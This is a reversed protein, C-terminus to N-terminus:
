IKTEGRYLKDLLGSVFKEPEFDILDEPKEGIGVHLVPVKLAEAISFIAGGKATGDLKTIIVGDIGVMENFKEAQIIASTGQTGDLILIKQHPSDPLAKGSVRIIKKLEEALNSQNHLRGATDIIIRDVGKAVGSKVADFTVGSPDHGQKSFVIPVDIKDAWRKLQEIAAARFTDSAGLLVRKGSNKYKSALKAITTTKGAGNVGIILQVLPRVEDSNQVNEAFCQLLRPELDERAIENPLDLLLEEVLDYTVDSEILIEELREKEIHDLVEVLLAEDLAKIAEITKKFGKEFFGLM